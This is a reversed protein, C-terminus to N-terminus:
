WNCIAQSGALRAPRTIPASKMRGKRSNEAVLPWNASLSSFRESMTKTFRNSIPMMASAAHPKKPWCMATSSAQVKRM